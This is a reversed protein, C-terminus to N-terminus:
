EHIHLRPIQRADAQGAGQTEGHKREGLELGGEKSSAQKGATPDHKTKAQIM